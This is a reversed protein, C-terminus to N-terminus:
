YGSSEKNKKMMRKINLMLVEYSGIYNLCGKTSNLESLVSQLFVPKSFCASTFVSKMGSLELYVEFVGIMYGVSVYLDSKNKTEGIDCGIGFSEPMDKLFVLQSQNEYVNLSNVNLGVNVVDGKAVGGKFVKTVEVKYIYSFCSNKYKTEISGLVTGEIILDVDELVEHSSPSYSVDSQFASAQYGFFFLIIFNFVRM